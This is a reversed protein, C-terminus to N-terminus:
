RNAVSGLLLVKLDRLTSLNLCTLGRTELHSLTTVNLLERVTPNDGNEIRELQTQKEEDPLTALLYLASSGLHSLTTTNPLERAVTM